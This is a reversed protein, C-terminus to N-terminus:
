IEDDTQEDDNGCFFEILEEEHADRDYDATEELEDDLDDSELVLFDVISDCRKKEREKEYADNHWLYTKCRLLKEVTDDSLRNRSKTQIAKHVSHQRECDCSHPHVSIFKLAILALQKYNESFTLYQRWFRIPCGSYIKNKFFEQKNRYKLYCDSIGAANEYDFSDLSTEFYENASSLQENNLPHGDPNHFYRPDFVTALHYMPKAIETWRRECIHAMEDDHTGFVYCLSNFTPTVDSLRCNDKELQGICSGVERVVRLVDKVARYFGDDLDIMARLLEPKNKFAQCKSENFALQKLVEENVEVSELVQQISYFRTVCFNKLTIHVNKEEQLRRFANHLVSSRNITSTIQKAICLTNKVSDLQCIEQLVLNIIHVTCLVVLIDKFDGSADNVVLNCAAEVVAANDGGISAVKAAGVERIVQKLISSLYFQDQSQVPDNFSRFFITKDMTKVVVSVAHDSNVNKFGDLRISVFESDSIQADIWRNADDALKDLLKTRAKDRKPFNVKVLNFADQAFPIDVFRFASNGIVMAKFFLEIFKDSIEQRGLEKMASFDLKPQKSAPAPVSQHYKQCKRLHASFKTINPHYNTGCHLCKYKEKGDVTVIQLQAYDPNRKKIPDIVKSSSSVPAPQQNM